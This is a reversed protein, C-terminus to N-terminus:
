AAEEVRERYVLITERHYHEDDFVTYVAEPAPRLRVIEDVLEFRVKVLKTEMKRRRRQESSRFLGSGPLAPGIPLASYPGDTKGSPM